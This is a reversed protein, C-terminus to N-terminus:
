PCSRQRAPKVMFHLCQPWSNEGPLTGEGKQESRQRSRSRPAQALSFYRMAPLGLSSLAAALEGLLSADSSAEGGLFSM